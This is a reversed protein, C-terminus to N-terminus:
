GLSVTLALSVYVNLVDTTQLFKRHIRKQKERSSRFWIDAVIGVFYVETLVRSNSKNKIHHECTYKSRYADSYKKVGTFCVQLIYFGM